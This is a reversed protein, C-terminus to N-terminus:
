CRRDSAECVGTTEQNRFPHYLDKTNFTYHIFYSLHNYSSGLDWAKKVDKRKKKM